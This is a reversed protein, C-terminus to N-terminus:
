KVMVKVNGFIYLSPYFGSYTATGPQVDLIRYLQGSLTYVKLQTARSSEIRVRREGISRITLYDNSAETKDKIGIEPRIEDGSKNETIRIESVSARSETRYAAGANDQRKAGATTPSMFTRFPMITTISSADDFATGEANIGYVSGNAVAKASFTGEHAFGDAETAMQTTMPIVIAQKQVDGTAGNGYAHFAVTQKPENKSMLNNYFASSLDFEYYREGPFRVIYPKNAALPLYAEYTHSEAYYPNDQSNYLRKGYTDIFFPTEFQYNFGNALDTEGSTSGSSGSTTGSSIPREFIAELSASGANGSDGTNGSSDASKVNKLNRLWYEHHLTHTNLAPNAKEEESPTGYFHTIEGNLSAKVLTATYPLTIGEWAGESDNAYNMPKRVYWAHNNVQFSLPVCLDNNQCTEGESNVDDTTREVLHLLNTSFAPTTSAGSGTAGAETSSTEKVIHHGKILYERTAETYTLAKSAMDYAETTNQKDSGNAATYVLLNQTVGDKTYFNHYAEANDAVQPYFIGNGATNSGKVYGSGQSLDNQCTFDIATTKPDHVYTDAVLTGDSYANYHFADLKTDGYYAATRYVRNSMKDVQQSALEQPYDEPTSQLLQGWYIFDDMKSTGAGETVEKANHLPLYDGTRSETVVKDNEDTTAAKYNQARAKDITHSQDHRTEAQGYNPLDSDRGTRLYTYGTVNGTINDRRRAYQYDGNAYYDYVYKLAAMDDKNKLDNGLRARLYYENLDYAVRGLRFDEQSYGTYETGDMRYVVLPEYEFCCHYAGKNTGDSTCGKAAITGSELGLNYIQGQNEGILSKGKGLGKVVHGNGHLVGRFIADSGAYGDPITLDNLVVFQANAGHAEDKQIFELFAKLDTNDSLYIRPEAFSDKYTSSNDEDKDTKNQEQAAKARVIAEKIHLDLKQQNDDMKHSDMRQYNHVLLSDEKQMTVPIIDEYGQINMTIGLQVGYGNMYYFVPIDLYDETKDYYSGAFVGTGKEKSVSYTDYGLPTADTYKSWNTDDDFKWEESANDYHRKGIRWYYGTVSISQDAKVSVQDKKLRIMEGPLACNAITIHGDIDPGQVYEIALDITYTYWRPMEVYYITEDGLKVSAKDVKSYENSDENRTYFLDEEKLEQYFDTEGNRYYYTTNADLNGDKKETYIYTGEEGSRTYLKSLAVKGRWVLGNEDKAQAKLVLTSGCPQALHKKYYETTSNNVEDQLQFVIRAYGNSLNSPLTSKLMTCDSSTADSKMKLLAGFGTTADAKDPKQFTANDSAGVYLNYKGQISKEEKADKANEDYNREELDCTYDTGDELKKHASHMKWSVIEVEQGGKLGSLSVIGDENNSNFLLPTKNDMTFGTIHANYHYNFGTVYWYHAEIKEDPNDSTSLTNYGLPFCDDVIFRGQSKHYPFVFNGSIELFDHDKGSVEGTDSTKERHHINDAYVYGGGEDERVDILNMEIVGIIPGYYIHNKTIGKDDVLEQVNQVKLAYGSAIGIMNAATGDNRQEFYHDDESKSNSKDTSYYDDIYQQKVGQYTTKGSYNGVKGDRDHWPDTFAVNSKLAGVYLINNALGMYNRARKTNNDALGDTGNASDTKKAVNTAIMQIENVRSISYPTMDMANTAYDRAGLLSFCNDTLRLLDLRQFTNLIKPTNITTSAFGYGALDATRFGEAYSLHGDGFIGGENDYEYVKDGEMESPLTGKTKDGGKYYKGAEYIYHYKKDSDIYYYGLLDEGDAVSAEKMDQRSITIHDRDESETSTETSSDSGVWKDAILITTNGGFGATTGNPLKKLEEQQTENVMFSKDVNYQKTYKLVTTNNSLVSSGNALSYGGGYVAEGIKINVNDWGVSPIGAPVETFYKSKDTDSITITNGTNGEEKAMIDEYLALPVYDGVLLNLKQKITEHAVKKGKDIDINYQDSRKLLYCGAQPSLVKYYRPYGVKINTSGWVYGSYSGGTVSKFVHGNLIDVYTNGILNGQQGGGYIFNASTGTADFLTERTSSNEETSNTTSTTYSPMKCSVGDAMLIHSNGYVYSDLGYGAGYVNLASYIPNTALYENSKELMEKSKGKLMDSKLDITIDGRVTGTRYCGGYINGGVYAGQQESPSFDCDINLKIFPYASHILGLLYGGEHNAKGKYNYNANNCGGIIKDTITLGKPFYYDVVNGIKKVTASSTYDADTKPYVNMNGRNGGCCFTGITCNKLGNAGTESGNWTLTGQIDTEVPQFYLDILHPYVTPRDENKTSLYLVSIGKNSPDNIWDISDALNLEKEYDYIDGNLKQFKNMFDNDESATFLADGNSGMFVSGINVNSGIDLKVFGEMETNNANKQVKMITASNGGGYVSGSITVPYNETGAIKISTKNTLPRWSNINVIKTANSAAKFSPMSKRMPVTYVLPETESDPDNPNLPYNENVTVQDNGKKDLAYLYDGNGAGYVNGYIKGGYINIHTGDGGNDVFYGDADIDMNVYGSVDNSGYVDGHIFIDSNDFTAKTGSSESNTEDNSTSSALTGINVNTSQLVDGMLGGGFVDHCDIAKIEVHTAKVSNYFGGGFVRRCFAGGEGEVYTEGEVKGSYGGGVIDMLSYDSFFHKYEEGNKINIAPDHFSGRDDMKINLHTDGKIITNEGYGGGFVCFHPSGVKNYVQEWEASNFFNTQEVGSVVQTKENLLGKEMTLYTNGGSLKRDDDIEGIACVQNGGGYINHNIKFKQTEPDYQPSYIKGGKITAPEWFRIDPLWYSILRMEGGTIFLNTNGTVDASTLENGEEDGWGGGFVNHYLFGGRIGVYTNGYITGNQCGGYIRNFLKAKLKEEMNSVDTHRLYSEASPNLSTSTYAGAGAELYPYRMYPDDIIVAANGYIGGLQKYDHCEAQTRGKGGAFTQALILGGRIDVLSTYPHTNNVYDDKDLQNASAKKDTTGVNAVDGGGYVNGIIITRDILMPVQGVTEGYIHVESKGKVRAMEPFDIIKGTRADKDVIEGDSVRVSEVGAGGGYVDDSVNGSKIFVKTNGGVTGFDLTKSTNEDLTGYPAYGLGGGFINRCALQNNAEVYTDGKVYGSFGGGQIQLFTFSPIGLTWAMRSVHYRNFTNPDSMADSSAGYYRIKDEDSVSEYDNWINTEFATYKLRDVEQNIYHYQKGDITYLSGDERVTAGPQAIVRTNGVQTNAGYGAGFVSFQPHAENRSALYWCLGQLTTNDLLSITHGNQDLYDAAPSHNIIVEATGTGAEPKGSDSIRENAYTGVYCARNGGGFINHNKTFRGTFTTGSTDVKFFKNTSEDRMIRDLAAVALPNTLEARCHGQKIDYVIAKFEDLTNCIKASGNQAAIWTTISGEIDASRDWLWTGGDMMVKTNGLINAYTGELKTDKKGLVQNLIEMDTSVGNTEDETVDTLPVSGYGGGFINLGLMGGEIHVLTNGNVTGYACGGYIRNWIYPVSYGQSDMAETAVGNHSNTTEAAVEYNNNTNAVHVLTNGNIRGVKDYEKADKKTLGKGGGFVAGYIDGGIINVFSRHNSHIYANEKIPKGNNSDDLQTQSVPRDKSYDAPNTYDADAPGVNAIDGGGYVKGYVNAQDAVEVETTGLVRAVETFYIYTNNTSTPAVGAGGGFIDGYTKAGHVQVQTDGGVQGSMDDASTAEPNGFGGGYVRHLFTQGDVLVHTDGNVKGAYGGGFVSHVTFNPIGKSNDFVPMEKENDAARSAANKGVKNKHPKALQEDDDDAEANYIGYDGEVDVTVDTSGVLTNTGYGGGFVSFHPNKNDTYSSKWEDTKLLSFPTMGKLVEVTAKGSVRCALNGGGYINHPNVFKGESFFASQDVNFNKKEEEDAIEEKVSKDWGLFMGQNDNATADWLRNWIVNISFNDQMKGDDDGSQGGFDQALTVHTNGLKTNNDQVQTNDQVSTNDQTDTSGTIDAYTYLSPDLANGNDDLIRGKGGGFVQGALNGAYINVYTDGNVQALNGGGYIDGYVSPAQATSGQFFVSTSGIVKGVDEPKRTDNAIVVKKDAIANGNEDIDIRKKRGNGGAFISGRIDAKDGIVLNTAMDAGHYEVVAMDGGGYINDYFTGGNITVYSQGYLRAMDSLTNITSDNANLKSDAVGYGGGFIPCHFSGGRINLEVNGYTKGLATYNAATGNYPNSHYYYDTGRGAAFIGNKCYFTGGNITLSAVTTGVKGYVNGGYESPIGYVRWLSPSMYGSGGAYIGDIPQSPAGFVGDNIIIQTNTKEPDVDTPNDNSANHCTFHVLSNKAKEYTDYYIADETANWYPIYKDPTHTLAKDEGYGIGNMGGAGAGFIGCLIKKKQDETGPLIEFTGGNITITSLGYFPNNVKTTENQGRGTSGGYLETVIVRRNIDESKNNASHAPDLLINARGMYTNFPFQHKGNNDSFVIERDNGLSGNAIRAVMGSKVTIDVDGIMAGEHNGALIIGVDYDNKREQSAGGRFPQVWRLENHEDNWDRDIDINIRCKIPMNPTGMLGNLKTSSGSHRGGACVCSYFGSKINISFGEKGHPMAKEFKEFNAKTRLPYFRGDNNFGGFIQLANTVAGDVTGYEPANVNFGTVWIGEGMELNHYQCYINKYSTGKNTKAFTINEFRTDGWLPLGIEDSTINITGEYDKDDWKGTITTNRCLPSNKASEWASEDMINAGQYNNTINFGNTYNNTVSEDSTGILVIVNEDWSGNKNLQTYAQKWTKVPTAATYGDNNVDDGENYTTGNIIVTKPCLYVVTTAYLTDTLLVLTDSKATVHCNFIDSNSADEPRVFSSDRKGILEEAGKYWQYNFNLGLADNSVGTDNTASITYTTKGTSADKESKLTASVHIPKVVATATQISGDSSVAYVYQEYTKRTLTFSNSATGEKLFNQNDRSVYWDFSATSITGDKLEVTLVDSKARTVKVSTTIFSAQGNGTYSWTERDLNKDKIFQNTMGIFKEIFDNYVKETGFNYANTGTAKNAKTFFLTKKNTEPLNGKYSTEFFAMVGGVNCNTNSINTKVGNGHVFVNTPAISYSNNTGFGSVNGFGSAIRVKTNCKANVLMNVETEADINYIRYSDNDFYGVIGGVRYPCTTTYTEENDTVISNRIIINSIESNPNMEGALVGLKIVTSGKPTFGKQMEVTGDEIILDSVSAYGSENNGNGKIKAFLGWRAQLGTENTWIIHMQSISHGEGDFKGQFGFDKGSKNTTTGIPMWLGKNLVINNTLKYYKGVTSVGNNVEHALRALQLDSNIQYPDDKTGTGGAYETAYLDISYYKQTTTEEGARSSRAASRTTDASAVSDNTEICGSPTFSGNEVAVMNEQAFSAGFSLLLTLLCFWTRIFGQKKITHQSIHM